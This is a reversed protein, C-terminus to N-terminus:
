NGNPKELQDIFKQVENKEEETMLNSLQNLQIILDKAKKVIDNM